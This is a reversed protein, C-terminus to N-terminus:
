KSSDSDAVRREPKINRQENMMRMWLVTIGLMLAPLPAAFITWFRFKNKERQMLQQEKIELETIEDRLEDDLKAQKLEFRRQADMASQSTKQLKQFFSLQENQQIKSTAANLNEQADALEDQVKKEAAQQQELRQSRFTKFISELRTLTRPVPRRNRLRVFDDSGALVEIANQFLSHNDLRSDLSEEHIRNLDTVFDLDSIFVVDLNSDGKGQIRAAIVHDEEDIYSQPEPNIVKLLEGTIQSMEPQEDVTMEGTRPNLMRRAEIRTMMLQDAPTSGSDAGLSVLPTFDYKSNSSKRISGPYFFLLENLGSTIPSDPNFSIRGDENKVFVLAKEFPGYFAPWGAGLYPPWEGKFSPHPQSLNWVSSGPNWDVGLASLLTAASGGDAKPMSSSTLIQTYRSQRGVRPQLPSNIVGVETPHQFTWFFLLPDAMIVAPHGAELYKVLETMAMQDLSSPDAVILVDPAKKTKKKAAGEEQEGETPETELYGSLDTGELYKIKFHGKLQDLTSTFLWQEVRGQGPIDPGGFHADSNLIGLTMRDDPKELTAAISRSLEYEISSDGSVFPLTTDGRSSSIQAGLYVKQEVVNGDVESRDDRPEIGLQQAELEAKSNPAVDVFRVDVYNGGYDSFQNLLGVFQKKTNVYSRPVNKSVFAQITVSCNEKKAKELTDVSATDLTYLKEATLDAQASLSSIGFSVLYNLAVFAVGLSLARVFFQTGLSTQQGKSWHRHSIVILNLYLMFVTLTVFYVVSSLPILGITFDGLNWDVGFRELGINGKFYTGILVPIACLLNGLVFAVTASSTLSSAFLGISVLAMGALWYGIYTTVIVGWDPDGILDLPILQTMSFLLAITYVALAALFKGLLIDFDSAPLTFLISDTGSRKEEAWITMTIAPIFTLLLMPFWRSLQDLNALNDAFFQSSFTMVACVTVFVVIFLYGLVGSFYQKVNRWFVASVVHWRFM